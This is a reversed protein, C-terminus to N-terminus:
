VHSRGEGERWKKVRKGLGQAGFDTWGGDMLSISGEGWVERKLFRQHVREEMSPLGKGSIPKLLAEESRKEL